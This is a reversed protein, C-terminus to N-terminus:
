NEFFKLLGLATDSSGVSTCKAVDDANEFGFGYTVGLFDVGMGEAGIADFATDGIMVAREKPVGTVTMCKEIIDKKKLKNEHDGGFMVDTYRDFGFHRLLTLAYDERKYTAVAPRIGRKCLEEFLEVHSLPHLSHCNFALPFNLTIIDGPETAAIDSVTNAVYVLRYIASIDLM